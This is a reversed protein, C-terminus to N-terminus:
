GSASPTAPAVTVRDRCSYGRRHCLEILAPLERVLKKRLTSAYKWVLQRAAADSRGYVHLSLEDSTHWSGPRHGLYSLLKLEGTLLPPMEIGVIRRESIDLQLGRTRGSATTEPADSAGSTLELQLQEHM